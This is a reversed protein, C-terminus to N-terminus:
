IYGLFFIPYLRSSSMILKRSVTLNKRRRDGLDSRISGNNRRLDDKRSQRPGATKCALPPIRVVKLLMGVHGKSEIIFHQMDIIRARPLVDVCREISDLRCHM